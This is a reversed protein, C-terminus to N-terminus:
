CSAIVADVVVVVMLVPFVDQLALIKNATTEAPTRNSKVKTHRVANTSMKRLHYKVQVLLRCREFHGGHDRPIQSNLSVKRNDHVPQGFKWGATWSTMHCWSEINLQRIADRWQEVLASKDDSIDATVCSYAKYFLNSIHIKSIFTVKEWPIFLM